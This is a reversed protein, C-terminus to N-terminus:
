FYIQGGGLQFVLRGEFNFNKPVGSGGFQFVEGGGDGFILLSRVQSSGELEKRSYGEHSICQM